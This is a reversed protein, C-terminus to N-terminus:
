GPHVQQHGDDLHTGRAHAQHLHRHEGPGGQAGVDQDHRRERHQGRHQAHQGHVTVQIGGKEGIIKAAVGHHVHVQDPDPTVGLHIDQDQRHETDEGFDHGGVAALRQETVGGHDVGGHHNGHQRVQHPQVVEEGHARPGTHVREEPDGGHNDRYRCPRLDEVPQEGHETAADLEIHGHQPGQAKHDGENDTTHGPHQQRHRRHVEHQM